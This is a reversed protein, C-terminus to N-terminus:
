PPPPADEGPEPAGAAPSPAGAAPAPAGASPPLEGAAPALYGLAELERQLGADRELPPGPSPLRPRPRERHRALLAELSARVAPREAALDRREETDSASFLRVEEDRRILSHHDTTVRVGEVGHASAAIETVAFGAAAPPVARGRLEAALSRGEVDPLPPLALLDLLTPALDLHRTTRAVRRPPLEPARVLLPVRVEELHLDGHGFGGHEGLQEGHDSALV